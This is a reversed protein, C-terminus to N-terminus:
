EWAAPGAVARSAAERWSRAERVFAWWRELLGFHVAYPHNSGVPKTLGYRVPADEWAFTGFMRDWVMLLGGYNKDLYQPNAGHHVRHASPTNLWGDLWPMRGVSETHIWQQWSLNFLYAGFVLVPHLGLLVLGVQMAVTVWNAFVENVPVRAGVTQDFHEASHHVGHYAAWLAGVEHSWRHDWYYAFDVALLAVITTTWTIEWQVPAFEWAVFLPLARLGTLLAEGATYPVLCFLSTAMGAVRDRTLSGSRWLGGIEVLALPFAVALLVLSGVGLLAWVAPPAEPVLDAPIGLVDAFIM